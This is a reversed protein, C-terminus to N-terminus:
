ITMMKVPVMRNISGIAEFSLTNVDTISESKVAAEAVQTVPKTKNSVKVCQDNNPCSTM